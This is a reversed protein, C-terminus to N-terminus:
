QPEGIGHEWFRLPYNEGAKEKVAQLSRDPVIGYLCAPSTFNKIFVKDGPRILNKYDDRYQQKVPGFKMKVKEWEPPQQDDPGPTEIHFGADTTDVTKEVIFEDARGFSFNHPFQFATGPYIVGISNEVGAASADIHIQVYESYPNADIIYTNKEAWPITKEVSYTSFTKKL